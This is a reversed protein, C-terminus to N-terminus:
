IETCSLVEAEEIGCDKLFRYTDDYFSRPRTPDRDDGEPVFIIMGQRARTLLVRYSNALYRIREPKNVNKWDTGIFRNFSWGDGTVQGYKYRFNADWCVGVWDLELGQIDFETAVDELYQCSRVDRKGNLFWEAPSVKAKINIGEPKLRNAGSSAILGYLESGRGRERLWERAQTIDRTLRIPYFDQIQRYLNKAKERQNDIICGVFESLKEARFSRISVGLHLADNSESVLGNLQQALATGQTYEKGELQSSYYVHWHRFSRRLASFWEPLGAEGTNIEQGGGILAIVVCWDEHRDMVKVLFEPESLNFGAQQRKQQMFKSTSGQDWARQAEDFVVVKEVPASETGLNDDRFHHINQIFAAAKRDADKKSIGERDREDRALAERLVAVLPGNGSLFVAHEDDHSRMRDTTINLGALTKGAGPVGTVFCIAKEHNAKAREIVGSIAYATESLNKAGADSRSIEEVNHGQYLAQAAQVITPTPKYASAAWEMPEEVGFPRDRWLGLCRRLSTEIGDKNTCILCALGDQDIDFKQYEVNTSHAETAVLMPVVISKHSGEHFHKLDLGYDLSQDKDHSHYASAGVKFELVFVIGDIVLVIDARKGMRPIGFEFFIANKDSEFVSLQQKLIDIQQYWAGTQLQVLDQSHYKSLEGVIAASEEQLFRDLSSSYYARTKM